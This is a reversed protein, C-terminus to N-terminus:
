HNSDEEGLSSLLTLSLTAPKGISKDGFCRFFEEISRGKWSQEGSQVAWSIKEPMGLNLAGVIAKPQKM